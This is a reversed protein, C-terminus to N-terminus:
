IAEHLQLYHKPGQLGPYSHVVLSLMDRRETSGGSTGDNGDSWGIKWFRLTLPCSGGLWGRRLSLNFLTSCPTSGNAAPNRCTRAAGNLYTSGVILCRRV